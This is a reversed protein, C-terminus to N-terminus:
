PVQDTPFKWFDRLLGSQPLQLPVNGPPIPKLFWRDYIAHIERSFILRRMENDVIKKFAADDKPLMIALPETTIFKGVVTLSERDARQAILGFLLVDDMVFADAEGKAVMEVGQEHGESELLTWRWGSERQKRQLAALPTTNRTSVVRKLQPHGLTDFPSGAKVLMRAGTIFHPITFAVQQRRAANNTTSGCELHAQRQAIVEIRNATNVMRTEVALAPLGLAVRVSEALRKCIDMAYGVPQKDPGLYSFPVSAERHAIVLKGSARIADIVPGSPTQAVAAGCLASLLITLCVRIRASATM